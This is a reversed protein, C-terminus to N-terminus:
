ILKILDVMFYTKIGCKNLQITLINKQMFKALTLYIQSLVFSFRSISTVFPTVFFHLFVFCHSYSLFVM